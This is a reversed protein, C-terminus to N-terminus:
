AHRSQLTCTGHWRTDSLILEEVLRFQFHKRLPELVVAGANTQRKIYEREAGVVYLVPLWTLGSALKWASAKVHQRDITAPFTAKAFSRRPIGPNRPYTYFFYLRCYCHIATATAAAAAVAAAATATPLHATIFDTTLM